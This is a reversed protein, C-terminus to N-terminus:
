WHGMSTPSARLQSHHRMEPRKERNLQRKQNVVGKEVSTTYQLKTTQNSHVEVSRYLANYPEALYMSTLAFETNQETFQM